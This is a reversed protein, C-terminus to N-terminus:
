SIGQKQLKDESPIEVDDGEVFNPDFGHMFNAWQLGVIAGKILPLAAFTMIFLLPIWLLAHILYSPAYALEVAVACGVLLKGVISITFYAPADDARQHHLEEGCTACQDVVKLYRGFLAGQGCNPCKQRFGRRMASFIMRKPLTSRANGASVDNSYHNM